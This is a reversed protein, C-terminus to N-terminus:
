MLAMKSAWHRKRNRPPQHTKHFASIINNNGPNSYKVSSNLSEQFVPLEELANSILLAATGRLFGSSRVARHYTVRRQSIQLARLQSMGRPPPPTLVTSLITLSAFNDGLTAPYVCSIDRGKTSTSSTLYFPTDNGGTDRLM